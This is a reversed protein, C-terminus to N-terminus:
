GGGGGPVEEDAEVLVGLECVAREADAGEARIRLATGQSAALSLISLVSAGNVWEDNKGVSVESEFESVLAVFRGAPRAHMGLPSGVIFEREVADSM